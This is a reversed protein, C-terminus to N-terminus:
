LQGHSTIGNILTLTYIHEIHLQPIILRAARGTSTRQLSEFSFRILDATVYRRGQHVYDPCFGEDYM